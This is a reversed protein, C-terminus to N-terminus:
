ETFTDGYQKKLAYLKTKLDDAITSYADDNYVNVMEEKDKNLDYLEWEDIEYFHILKYDDTRIGYHKHVMHVAPYEFYHYYLADRWDKQPDNLLLPVLSKGQMDAPAEVNAIDLITQAFDLNQVLGTNESGPNVKGPWKVILPTSMSVDYMFRKDFWGKEGLYFGQDSTYMVVTNKALGSEDLYDLVRGINEDVAAICRLYDKMYNQFKWRALEDGQLNAQVFAKNRPGYAANWAEKQAETLRREFNWYWARDSGTSTSDVKERQMKLDNLLTMDYIISMEQDKAPTGLDEWSTLFSGPVPFETSDYLHLHRLAPMWNRHPAKHHIMLCFPKDTKRKKLWDLAFDTILDTVYGEHRTDKGNEIFEPNYYAGQGPLINYYNFGSPRSKLHWKGVIATEYGAKRLLKPFTVQASDFSLRNDLVGNLHSHKGTLIVARSPACISNTVFARQFIMGDSALRDFNPTENLGEGYASIASKDHDDSMIFIINPREKEPSACGLFLMAPMLLPLQRRLNITKM